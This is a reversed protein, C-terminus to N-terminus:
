PKPRLSELFSSRVWYIDANGNEPEGAFAKMEDYTITDGFQKAAEKPRTSMFFFYRGDPSFSPSFEQFGKTNIKEGLNIPGTWQDQEDRFVIYYDISGVSDERGAVCVIIFREDPSICANFEARGCNVEPGLKEVNSYGNEGLKARFIHDARAGKERRAFYIKGSHTFSPFFEDAATNVEGSLPKPEGWSNGKREVMWIDYNTEGNANPRNSVFFLHKGDLAFFPEIDNFAPNRCFSPFEPKTWSGNVYNSEAIKVLSNGTVGVGFLITKGDPSIAVDREFLHTSAIGPAFLVPEDGPPKQGFYRWDASENGSVFLCGLFICFLTLQKM